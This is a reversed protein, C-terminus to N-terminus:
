GEGWTLNSHFNEGALPMKSKIIKWGETACNMNPNQRLTVQCSPFSPIGRLPNYPGAVLQVVLFLSEMWYGEGGVLSYEMILGGAGEQEWWSVVFSTEIRYKIVNVRKQYIM